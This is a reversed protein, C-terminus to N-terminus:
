LLEKNWGISDIDYDDDYNDDDDNTTNNDHHEWGNIM